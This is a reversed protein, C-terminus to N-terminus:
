KGIKAICFDEVAAKVWIELSLKNLSGTNLKKNMTIMSTLGFQEKCRKGWKDEFEMPEEKELEIWNDERISGNNGYNSLDEVM